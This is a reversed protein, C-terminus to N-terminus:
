LLHLKMKKEGKENAIIRKALWPDGDLGSLRHDVAEQFRKVDKPDPESM